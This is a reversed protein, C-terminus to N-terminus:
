RYEISQQYDRNVLERHFVDSSQFACKLLDSALESILQIENSNNKDKM